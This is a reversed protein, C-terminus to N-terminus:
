PQLPSPQLRGERRILRMACRMPPVRAMPSCPIWARPTERGCDARPRCGPQRRRRSRPWNATLTVAAVAGNAQALPVDAVVFVTVTADAQSKTLSCLGHRDAADYFAMATRIASCACTPSMSRTPTPTHVLAARRSPLPLHSISRHTRHPQDCHLGDGPEGCGALGHTTVTGIEAVTLNVRRDVTLTDSATAATRRSAASRSPWRCTTSLPRAPPRAPGRPRSKRRPRLARFLGAAGLLRSRYTM